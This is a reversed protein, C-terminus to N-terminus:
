SSKAWEMVVTSGVWAALLVMFTVQSATISWHKQIPRRPARIGRGTRFTVDSM